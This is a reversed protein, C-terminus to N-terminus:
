KEMLIKNGNFDFLFRPKHEFLESKLYFGEFSINELLRKKDKFIPIDKISSFYRLSKLAKSHYPQNENIIKYAKEDENFHLFYNAKLFALIEQNDKTDNNKNFKMLREFEMILPKLYPIFEKKSSFFTYTIVSDQMFKDIKKTKQALSRFVLIDLLRNYGQKLVDTYKSYRLYLFMRQYVNKLQKPHKHSLVKIKKIAEKEKGKMILELSSLLQKEVQLELSSVHQIAAFGIQAFFVLQLFLIILLKKM